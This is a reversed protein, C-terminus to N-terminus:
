THWLGPALTLPIIHGTLWCRPCRTFIPFTFHLIRPVSTVHTAQSRACPTWSWKLGNPTNTEFYVWFCRLNWELQPTGEGHMPQVLVYYGITQYPLTWYLQGRQIHKQLWEICKDWFRRWSYFTQDYHSVMSIESHTVSTAHMAHVKSKYNDTESQPWETVTFRQIM